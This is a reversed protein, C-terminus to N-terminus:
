KIMSKKMEKIIWKYKKVGVTIVSIRIGIESSTIGIPIGILSAFASITISGTVVSALYSLTWYLKSNYM